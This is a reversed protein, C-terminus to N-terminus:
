LDIIHSGGERWDLTVSVGVTPDNVTVIGTDHVKAKLIKLQGARLPSPIDLVTETVTGDTIRVYVLWRWLPEPAIESRFPEVTETVTRTGPRYDRSPFHVSAFCRRSGSEVPLDDTKVLPDVTFLWTSDAVDFGDAFGKVYAKIGEIGDAEETELVLATAANVIFLDVDDHQDADPRVELTKRGAFLGTRHPEAMGDSAHQVLQGSPGTADEELTVPGNDAVNAVCAHRITQAPLYLSCDFAERDMIENLHELRAGTGEYFSLDVDHAVDSFVGKLYDQLANKVPVDAEESLVTELETRANTVLRLRYDIRLSGGCDSQDEDVLYSCGSLIAAGSLFALVAIRASRKM